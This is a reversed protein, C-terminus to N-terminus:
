FTTVLTRLVGAPKLAEGPSPLRVGHRAEFANVHKSVASRTMGLTRAAAAFSGAEVVVGFIHMGRLDDFQLTM